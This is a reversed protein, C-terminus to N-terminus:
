AKKMSPQLAVLESVFSLIEADVRQAAAAASTAASRV